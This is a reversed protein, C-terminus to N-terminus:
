GYYKILKQWGLNKLSKPNLSTLINKLKKLDETKDISMNIKSYNKKLSLNKIKFLKPNKYFFKTVHEKESKLKFRSYYKLFIKKKILEVSQGKPFTRPFLNTYLDFNKKKGFYLIKKIIKPDILPSDGSIRLFYDTKNKKLITL